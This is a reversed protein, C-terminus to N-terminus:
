GKKAKLRKEAECASPWVRKCAEGYDRLAEDRKGTKENLRARSEFVEVFDGDLDLARDFDARAKEAQGAGAHAEGRRWLADASAPDRKLVANFQKIAKKHEGLKAYAAGRCAEIAGEYSGSTLRMKRGSKEAAGCAALAEKAKGTEMLYYAHNTMPVLQDTHEAADCAAAGREPMRARVAAACLNSKITVDQPALQAAQELDAVAADYRHIKLYALGRLNWAISDKPLAAVAKGAHGIADNYRKLGFHVTGLQLHAKGLDEPRDSKANWAGIANQYAALKANPEPQARAKELLTTFESARAAAPLLLLVLALSRM